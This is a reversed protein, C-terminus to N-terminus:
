ITTQCSCYVTAPAGHHGSPRPSRIQKTMRLQHIWARSEFPSESVAAHHGVLAAISIFSLVKVKMSMKLKKKLDVLFPMAVDIGKVLFAFATM